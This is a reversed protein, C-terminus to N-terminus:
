SGGGPSPAELSDCVDECRLSNCETLAQARIQSTYRHEIINTIRELYNVQQQAIRNAAQSQGAMHWSSAAVVGCLLWLPAAFRPAALEDRTM